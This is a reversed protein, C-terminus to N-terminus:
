PKVAAALEDPQKVSENVAVGLYDGIGQAIALAAESVVGSVVCSSM